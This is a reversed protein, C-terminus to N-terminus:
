WVSHIMIEEVSPPPAKSPQIVAIGTNWLVKVDGFWNRRHLYDLYGRLKFPQLKELYFKEPDGEVLALLDEENRLRLTVPDTIGPKAELVLQWMPDGLNVYRPVEPRPGVISMEGQLVNWFEPLEDLKTKRLIKGVRTVRPDNGVTVQLGGFNPRMSRFKCLMFNRGRRGVREQRFLVPGPSSIAVAFALLAFLPTCLVLLILALFLEVSRPLGSNIRSSHSMVARDVAVQMQM